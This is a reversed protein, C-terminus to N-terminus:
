RTEELLHAVRRLRDAWWATVDADARVRDLAEVDVTLDTVAIAGARARVPVTAVDDLLLSGTELGCAHPLDPLAAALAVGAHLGVSTDLASSVVAPLGLADVLELCRRGGG